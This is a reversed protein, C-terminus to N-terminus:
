CGLHYFLDFAFYCYFKYVVYFSKKMFHTRKLKRHYIEVNSDTLNNGVVAKKKGNEMTDNNSFKNM